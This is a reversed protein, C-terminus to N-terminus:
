PMNHMHMHQTQDPYLPSMPMMNANMHYMIWISGSLTIGVLIFTFVSAMLNWGSESTSNLHLFYVAHVIIQVMGVALVLLITTNTSAFVHGMVLWFPIVTLIAALFFGTLYGRLTAHPLDARGHESGHVLSDHHSEQHNSATSM